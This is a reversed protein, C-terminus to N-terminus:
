RAAPPGPPLDALDTDPGGIATLFADGARQSRMRDIHEPTFQLVDSMVTEWPVGAASAKSAADYREALSFRNADRWLVEWAEPETGTALAIVQAWADSTQLQKDEVKAVLAERQVAAGEASGNQPSPRLYYLPTSTIAAIEIVDEKVSELIPTLDVGASEWM